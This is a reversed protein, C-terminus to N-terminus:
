HSSDRQRLFSLAGIRCHRWNPNTGLGTGTLSFRLRAPRTRSLAYWTWSLTALFVIQDPRDLRFDAFPWFNLGRREVESDLSLISVSDTVTIDLKQQGLM